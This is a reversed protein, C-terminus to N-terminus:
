PQVEEVLVLDTPWQGAIIREVKQDIEYELIFAALFGLMRDPVITEPVTIKLQDTAHKVAEESGAAFALRVFYDGKAGPATIQQSINRSWTAVSKPHDVLIMHAMSTCEAELVRRLVAFCQDSTIHNM